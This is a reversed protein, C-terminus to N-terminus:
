VPNLLATAGTGGQAGNYAYFDPSWFMGSENELSDLTPITANNIRAQLPQMYTIMRGGMEAYYYFCKNAETIWGARVVGGQMTFIDEMVTPYDLQAWDIYQQELLTMGEARKTLVMIDGTIAPTENVGGPDITVNMGMGPDVLVPVPEADIDITGFGLGGSRVARYEQRFDTFSQDGDFGFNNTYNYMAGSAISEALNDWMTRSMLIIMDGSQLSWNRDALRRRLRRVIARLNQLLQGPTLIAAGNVVIPEAWHPVGAGVVRAPVYGTTIIQDLGDWEMQSNAVNGFKLVYDLHQQMVLMLRAVAWDRDNALPQGINSGRLTYIPHQEHYMVGGDPYPKMNSTTWSFSGGDMRYQFGSWATSPGYGCTDISIGALYEAYTQTGDFGDPAVWELHSVHTTRSKVRSTPLWNMLPSGGSIVESIPDDPYLNFPGGDYLWGTSPRAGSNPITDKRLEPYDEMKFGNDELYKLVPEVGTADTGVRGTLFDYLIKAKRDTNAM